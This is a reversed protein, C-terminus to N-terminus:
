KGGILKAAYEILYIKPAILIQLWTLNFACFAAAGLCLTLLAGVFYGFGSSSYDADKEFKFVYHWLVVIAGILLFSLIMYSLSEVMKWMLLQHIVDPMQESLFNVGAEVGTTAKQIIVALSTQLTDIGNAVAVDSKTGLVSM